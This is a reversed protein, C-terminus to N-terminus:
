TTSILVWCKSAPLPLGVYGLGLVGVLINKKAVKQELSTKNTM